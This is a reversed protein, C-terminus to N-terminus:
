IIKFYQYYLEMTEIVLSSEQANFNSLSWKVPYAGVCHYTQLPEHKDNLLTVVVTIPVIELDLVAAQIWALVKSDPMLGRKLVLNSYQAKTPLKHTFRNEGGGKRDETQLTVTLGSVDQFSTDLRGTGGPIGIFEVKFHFGVPPYYTQAM